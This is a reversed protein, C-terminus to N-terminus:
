KSAAFTKRKNKAKVLKNEIYKVSQEPNSILLYRYKLLNLPNLNEVTDVELNAINDFARKGALEEKSLIAYLANTKKKPMRDFGPITGLTKIFAVAHRTKAEPLEIKDMFLVEGDKLKKSLITYLAKIKMRKNIKKTYNKDNRPGHTAGGGVWIPSRTSGHRARGTGKQRWPKKGGGSVEGRNKAHAYPIRANSMMGMVVQHVLDANSGLGFVSDPLTIKGKEEGKQNYVKSEM